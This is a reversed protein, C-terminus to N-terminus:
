PRWREVEERRDPDRRDPVRRDPGGPHAVFPVRKRWLRAANAHIGASVRYTSFPDALAFRRLRGPTVPQREVSLRTQLTPEPDDRGVVDIEIDLGPGDALVRLEYRHDVTLFPSVHLAKDFTARHGEGTAELGMAYRHREKWPTNTVEAIAGVPSPDTQSWAIYLTIPNFLWGWRRPQTLMRVPGDAPIGAAALDARVAGAGIPSRNTGYDGARFRLPAPHRCSSLWHRDFLEEPRDPDIWVMSVRQRFRHAAPSTRRHMVWGPCLAAPGPTM